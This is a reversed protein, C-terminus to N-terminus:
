ARRVTREDEFRLLNELLVKMSYPLTAINKFGASELASLRFYQYSRDGVVLTDAAGFSNAHQQETM